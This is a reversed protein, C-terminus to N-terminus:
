ARQRYPLTWPKRYPASVLRDAEPSNTIRETGPDWTIRQGSRLAINGLHAVTSIYHGVELNEVPQQRSKACDIFNRVHAPRPDTGPPFKRPELTDKTPERLLEAGTDNIVLTGETGIFAM